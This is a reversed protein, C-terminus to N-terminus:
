RLKNTQQILDNQAKVLDRVSRTAGTGVIPESTQVTSSRDMENRFHDKLSGVQSNREPLSVHKLKVQRIQSLLGGPGGQNIQGLHDQKLNKVSKGEEVQHQAVGALRPTILAEVAFQTAWADVEEPLARYENYMTQLHSLVTGRHVRHTGWVSDFWSGVPLDNRYRNWSNVGRAEAHRVVSLPIHMMRAVHPPLVQSGSGNLWNNTLEGALVGQACRYWQEGHRAEHYLVSCFSIFDAQQLGHTDSKETNIDLRWKTADMHGGMHPEMKRFFFSFGPLAVTRCANWVADQIASRRRAASESQWSRYIDVCADAYASMVDQDSLTPDPM